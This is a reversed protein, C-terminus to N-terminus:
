IGTTKNKFDEELIFIPETGYEDIYIKRFETFKGKLTLRMKIHTADIVEGIVTMTRECLSASKADTTRFLLM